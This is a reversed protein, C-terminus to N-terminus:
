IPSRAGRTNDAGEAVTRGRLSTLRATDRSALTKGPELDLGAGSAATLTLRGADISYADTGIV